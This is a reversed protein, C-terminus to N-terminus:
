NVFDKPHKFINQEKGSKFYNAVSYRETSCRYEGKM